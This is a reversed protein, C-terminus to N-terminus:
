FQTYLSVERDGYHVNLGGSTIAEDSVSTITAGTGQGICSDGVMPVDGGTVTTDGSWGTLIFGTIQNARRADYAVAGSVGSKTKRNLTHTQEGRTGEGTTWSCVYAYSEIAEYSFSVGAANNQLQANNWNFATQVDGKGVFGEGTASDFIVAASASTAVLATALVTATLVSKITNNM